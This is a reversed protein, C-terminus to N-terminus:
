TQNNGVAGGGLYVYWRKLKGKQRSTDVITAAIGASECAKNFWLLGQKDGKWEAKHPTRVLKAPHEVKAPCAARAAM